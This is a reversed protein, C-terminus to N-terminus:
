PAEGRTGIRTADQNSAIPNTDVLVELNGGVGRGTSAKYIQTGIAETEELDDSVCTSIVDVAAATSAAAEANAIPGTAGIAVVVLGDRMSSLHCSMSGGGTIDISLQM